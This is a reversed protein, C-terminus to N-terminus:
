FPKWNGGAKSREKRALNGPEEYRMKDELDVSIEWWNGACNNEKITVGDMRHGWWGTSNDSSNRMSKGM